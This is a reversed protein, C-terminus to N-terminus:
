GNVGGKPQYHICLTHREGKRRPCKPDGCLNCVEQDDKAEEAALDEKEPVASEPEVAVSPPAAGGLREEDRLLPDLARTVLRGTGGFYSYTLHDIQAPSLRLWEAIQQAIPTGDLADATANLADSLLRASESARARG